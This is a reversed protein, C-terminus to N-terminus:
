TSLAKEDVNGSATHYVGIGQNIRQLPPTNSACCKINDLTLGIYRACYQFLGINDKGRVDAPTRGFRYQRSNLKCQIVQLRM